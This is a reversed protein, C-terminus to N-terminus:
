GVAIFLAGGQRRVNLLVPGGNSASAAARVEEPSDVPERNVSVIVDGSQLGDKAAESGSPVDVVLVGGDLVRSLPHQEPLPALRVGALASGEAEREGRSPGRSAQQPERTGLTAAVTRNYGERLLGIEVRTGPAMFGITNRLESSTRIPQDNVSVIVDGAKLGAAEAPSGESVNAVLAGAAQEIGMAKALDPTLNQISVGLQGRRVEGHAILQEAVQKAMGSPIAFGIGINGGSRSLIATNIGVLEGHMNVLAGGSNGPNISADTQIFDEYGEIGLGTRGVASVIGLTATQGLGFPNGIAVVFDGVGVPAKARAFPLETLNEAPVKLVAIDTEPDKGVVEATLERRDNLVVEIETANEIVHANTIVLGNRADIIVGSGASRTERESPVDPLDFFRRFLPDRFLPHEAISETGTGSINVVAPSVRKLMPSLSPLISDGSVGALAAVPALLPLSWIMVLRLCTLM